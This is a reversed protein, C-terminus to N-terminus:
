VSSIVNAQLFQLSLKLTMTFFLTDLLNNLKQVIRSCNLASAVVVIRLYLFSRTVNNDGLQVQSVFILDMCDWM